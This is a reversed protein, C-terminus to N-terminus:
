IETSDLVLQATQVLRAGRDMSTKQLFRHAQEETMGHRDMLLQKARLILAQEEPSRRPLASRDPRRAMDLLMQVTAILDRRSVPTPLRFLRDNDLLDLRDQSALVLLFCASPLDDALLQVPQDGLKYGCVVTDIHYKAVARRVQDASTCILCSAVGASELIEKARRSNAERTLALIIRDM